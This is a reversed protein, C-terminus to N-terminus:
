NLKVNIGVVERLENVIDKWNSQLLIKGNNNAFRTGDRLFHVRFIDEWRKAIYNAIHETPKTFNPNFLFQLMIYDNKIRDWDERFMTDLPKYFMYPDVTVMQLGINLAADLLDCHGRNRYLGNINTGM